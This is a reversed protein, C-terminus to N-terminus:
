KRVTHGDLHFGRDELAKKLDKYAKNPHEDMITLLDDGDHFTIVTRAKRGAKM